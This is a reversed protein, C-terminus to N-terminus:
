KIYRGISRGFEIPFESVIKKTIKANIKRANFMQPIDITTVGKLKEAHKTGAYRGRSKMTTGPIREVVFRVGNKTIAFAGPITKTGGGRKISFVLASKREKAFRIVNLGRKINHSSRDAFIVARLEGARARRVAVLPNVDSSKLNYEAVIVRKAETRAKDATKNLAASIVKDRLEVRLLELRKDIDTITSRVNISIM